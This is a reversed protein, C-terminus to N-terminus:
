KTYKLVIKANYKTADGNTKITIKNNLQLVAVEEVYPCAHIDFEKVMGYEDLGEGRVVGDISVITYKPDMYFTASKESNNPLAEFDILRTYVPKGMWRETTRYEVGPIMPPNVYEWESWTGNICTRRLEKGSEAQMVTQVRFSSSITEVRMIGYPKGYNATNSGMRYWGTYVADNADKLVESLPIVEGLGFGAPAAGVDNNTLNVDSALSHGNITRSIPVRATGAQEAILGLYEKLIADLGQFGATGISENIAQAVIAGSM